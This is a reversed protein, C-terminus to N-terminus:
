CRRTLSRENEYTLM